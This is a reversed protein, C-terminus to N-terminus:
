GSATTKITNVDSLPAAVYAKQDLTKTYFFGAVPFVGTQGSNVGINAAVRSSDDLQYRVGVSTM